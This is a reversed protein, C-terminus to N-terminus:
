RLDLDVQAPSQEEARHHRIYKEIMEGTVADGVTRAFYGDEWLEGKWYRKCLSPNERFLERASISKMTRIVDRISYKPPFSVFLHVHDEAVELELITFGYEAAIEGFLETARVRLYSQAFLQKRYKPCWVLHYQADYVAHSTRRLVM